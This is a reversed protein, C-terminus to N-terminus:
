LTGFSSTSYRSIGLSILPMRTGDRLVPHVLALVVDANRGSPEFNKSYSEPLAADVECITQSRHDTSGSPRRDSDDYEGVGTVCGLRSALVQSLANSVM